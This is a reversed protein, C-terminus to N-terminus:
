IRKTISYQQGRIVKLFMDYFQELTFLLEYNRGNTRDCITFKVFDKAIHEPRFKLIFVEIDGSNDKRWISFLEDVLEETKWQDHYITNVDELIDESTM